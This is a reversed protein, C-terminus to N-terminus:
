ILRARLTAIKRGLESERGACTEVLLVEARMLAQRAACEARDLHEVEARSCLLLGLSIPDSVEVLLSEGVDLCARAEEFRATRAYLLGLYTRFQGESRREGLDHAVAVAHEYHVRAEEFQSQADAVIGLNCLVACELRPHGLKRAMKLAQEFEGRAENHRGQEHHLLGLNCRTNGEWRQDGTEGALALSQEYHRRAEDFHGQGYHLIGLNNLLGGQWRRDGMSRALALAGEYQTRAQELHGLDNFLAGLGNLAKCELAVSGLERALTLARVLRCHADDTRGETTLHDALACLLLAESRRNRAAQAAKLGAELRPRAEEGRGLMYLASGAVWDLMAQETPGLGSMQDVTQALEVAGRFPGCLKLAAWAGCLAGVAAKADGSGAALRCAAALNDLEICGDAVAAREDLEAFHTWHRARAASTALPGSGPFRGESQLHEAAYEQVSVLLAFRHDGVQRVLSKQVLSQVLDIATIADTAGPEGLVAEAAALTFGGEFVSLRALAAREGASLLEWSWDFAARLTAQRDIRGGSSTLLRFRESMRTLLMHPRMVRVRAAALEIALPLGDLLRVLPEIAAEDELTLRFDSAAAAARQLFLTAGEAPPLPALALSQEGVIGLVERTTVIFRAEPARDLWYGVTREALSLVQEFNDIIVLCEGRGAIADGLQAVPDGKGLPVDLGQAVAHGLGTLGRAQSVDCFWVGGPFEGLRTWGFRQALRTKGTGGIGAISILRAGGQFRRGLDSLTAQRGIFTDRDAPLSHPVQALPLWLDNHRVVRYGKPSHSPPEFLADAEAVEFLEIPEDLGKFQWYGHCKPVFETESLASRAASTLLTQGGHALAMVRAVTPLAVGEVQHVKAGVSVDASTNERLTLAGVHLGVRAKIPVPLAALVQHYALAFGAADAAKAFLLLFGDSRDIERGPWRRLLDRAARDHADWVAQMASDGLKATLRTSDVIDTLLLACTDSM